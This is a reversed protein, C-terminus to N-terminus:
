ESIVDAIAQQELKAALQVDNDVPVSWGKSRPPAVTAFVGTVKGDGMFVFTFSRQRDPALWTLSVSGDDPDVEVSPMRIKFSLQDIVTTLEQVTKSKPAYSGEGAWGDSLDELERAIRDSVTKEREELIPSGFIPTYSYYVHLASSTSDTIVQPMALPHAAQVLSKATVGSKLCDYYDDTLRQGRLRSWKKTLDDTSYLADSSGDSHLSSRLYDEAARSRAYASRTNLIEAM